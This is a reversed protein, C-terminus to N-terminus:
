NVLSQKNKARKKQWNAVFIGLLIVILAGIQDFSFSENDILGILVAVGPIAYTVSSAFLTSTRAILINYLYVGLVTGLVALIVTYLFGQLAYRNEFFVSPTDFYIFFMLAPLFTMSFALATIHLAPIGALKYKIFNLSTAYCLTALVVALVNLLSGEFSVEGSAYVLMVVGINGIILGIIQRGTLRQGFAFFSILVTFIPTASNLMGVYGAVLNQQAYTFLFAPLFNGCFGVVLLAGLISKNTITRFKPLAVPLLISSAVLMRISAVQTSSFIASGDWAFM